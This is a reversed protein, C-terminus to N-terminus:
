DWPHRRHRRYPQPEGAAEPLPRRRSLGVIVAGVALLGLAVAGPGTVDGGTRSLLRLSPGSGLVAPLLGPVTVTVPTEALVGGAAGTVVLRHPGPPTDAPITVVVVFTGAPGVTLQSLLM